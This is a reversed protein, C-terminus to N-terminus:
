NRDWIEIEGDNLKNKNELLDLRKKLMENERLVIKLDSATSETKEKLSEIDNEHKQLTWIVAQGLEDLHFFKENLFLGTIPDKKNTKIINLFGKKELSKDMRSITKSSINLKDALEENSYTTKGIGKQDKILFQQAAIMYAKENTELKDSELFEDSFPEFNKYPNFKYVNKRGEKRISIYKNEVLVEISKRITNISYGSNKSITALSPYCEKSEYGMHTKISMYILLDKPELGDKKIMNNPLQIHKKSNEM